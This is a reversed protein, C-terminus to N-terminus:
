LVVGMLTKCLYWFCLVCACLGIDNHYDSQLAWKLIFWNKVCSRLGDCVTGVVLEHESSAATISTKVVIKVVM